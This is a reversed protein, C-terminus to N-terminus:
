QGGQQVYGAVFEEANEELIDDLDALLEEDDQDALVDDINDLTDETKKALEENSVETNSVETHTEEPRGSKRKQVREQTM